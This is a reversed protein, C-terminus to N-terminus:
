RSPLLGPTAARSAKRSLAALAALGLAVACGVSAHRLLIADETSTTLPLPAAFEALLAPVSAAVLAPPTELSAISTFGLLAALHALVRFAAPGLALSVLFMMTITRTRESRSGSGLSALAGVSVTSIAAALVLHVTRDLSWSTVLRLPWLVVQLLVVIALIDFLAQALPAASARGSLRLMPWGIGIGVGITAFLLSISPGYSASQAQVPPHFGFLAIWAGFIWLATLVVLGRPVFLPRDPSAAVDSEPETRDHMARGDRSSDDRADRMPRDLSADVTEDVTAGITAGITERLSERPSEVSAEVSAEDRPGDSADIKSAVRRQADSDGSTADM